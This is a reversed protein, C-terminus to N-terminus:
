SGSRVAYFNIRKCCPGREPGWQPLGCSKGLNELQIQLLYRFFSYCLFFTSPLFSLFIFASIPFHTKFALFCTFLWNRFLMMRGSKTKNRGWSYCVLPPATVLSPMRMSQGRGRPYSPLFTAAQPSLDSTRILMLGFYNAM